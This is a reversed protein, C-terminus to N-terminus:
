VRKQEDAMRERGCLSILEEHLEFWVTHYSDKLPSAILSVDGAAIKDAALKLRAAYRELRPAAAVTRALLQRLEAHLTALRALVARDYDGDNHDNPAQKGDIIRIQWNTVARKFRDDHAMFAAYIDDLARPELRRREDVLAAGLWARAKPTLHLGRAASDVLGADLGALAARVVEGSTLLSAALQEVSAFGRLQLARLLDFQGIARGDGAVKTVDDSEGGLEVGLEAAWNRLVRLEPPEGHGPEHQDGLYIAGRDGDITIVDGETLAYTGITVRDGIVLDTVGCVAPIGWSRAVLAAHSLMGGAATVIGAAAAM